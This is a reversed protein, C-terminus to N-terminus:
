ESYGVTELRDQRLKEEDRVREMEKWINRLLKRVDWMWFLTWAIIVIEILEIM